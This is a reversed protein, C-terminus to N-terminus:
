IGAAYAKIGSFILNPIQNVVYQANARKFGKRKQIQLYLKSSLAKFLFKYNDEDIEGNNYARTFRDLTAMEEKVFKKVASELRRKQIGTSSDIHSIKQCEALIVKVYKKYVKSM